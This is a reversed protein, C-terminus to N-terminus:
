SDIVPLIYGSATDTATGLNAFQRVGDCDVLVEGVTDAHGILNRAVIGTNTTADNDILLDGAIKGPANMYNDVVLCDTLLKGTASVIMGLTNAHTSSYFNDAFVLRDISGTHILFSDQASDIATGRCGTIRLVDDTYDAGSCSIYNVFYLDAVLDLFEIQDLHCNTGTVGIAVAVDAFGGIIRFNSLTVNAASVTITATTATTLTITPRLTGTGLGIVALGAKTFALGAAAAVSEAHGPMVMVVDGRSATAAAVAKAITSFPRLYTGDNGDSGGVGSKALVSSNNVWYVEGPHTNVIPIGRITIGNRFGNPYTSIPM